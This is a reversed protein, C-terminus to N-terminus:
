RDLEIGHSQLSARHHCPATQAAQGFRCSTNGIPTPSGPLPQVGGCIIGIPAHVRRLRDSVIDSVIVGSLPVSAALPSSVFFPSSPLWGQYARIPGGCSRKAAHPLSVGVLASSLPGAEALSPGCFILTWPPPM